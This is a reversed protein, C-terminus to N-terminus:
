AAPQTLLEYRQADLTAKLAPADRFSLTQEAIQYYYVLRGRLQAETPSFGLDHFIQECFGLRLADIEAVYADVWPAQQAWHRVAIDHRVDKEAIFQLVARLREAPQEPHQAVLAAVFQRQQEAWHAVTQELLDQRNQFHWYFSGKTVGLTRALREVKVQTVGETVLCDLAALIWDATGLPSPNKM